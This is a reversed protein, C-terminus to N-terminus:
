PARILRVFGYDAGSTDPVVVNGLNARVSVQTWRTLNSSAWVQIGADGGGIVFIHEDNYEAPDDLQYQVGELDEGEVGLKRLNGQLGIGLVIKRCFFVEGKRTRVEFSGDAGGISVVEQGYQINVKLKRLGEDWADLIEERKGEKALLNAHLLLIDADDPAM